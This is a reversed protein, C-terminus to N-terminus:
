GDRMGYGSGRGDKRSTPGSRVDGAPDRDLLPFQERLVSNFEEIMQESELIESHTENFGRINEAEKEAKKDLQSELSIVEDGNAGVKLFHSNGYAFFLNFTVVDPLSRRHLANIFDSARALDIWSPIVVPSIAVGTAATAVGGYPTCISIFLRPIHERDKGDCLNMAERVVLGGQSHAVVVMRDTGVANGSFFIDYFVGAITDLRLGSPYFFFWPQFHKRDISDVVTQWNKPSGDIGHVFVVPIKRPDYEELMYFFGNVNEFYCVPKYVGASANEDDFREDKLTTIIGTPISTSLVSAKIVKPVDLTVPVKSILPVTSDVYIDEVMIKGKAARHKSVELDGLSGVLEDKEVRSNDNIDAFVLLQYRGEPLLLYFPGAAPIFTYSTIKGRDEPYSVAVVCFPVGRGVNGTIKGTVLLCKEPAAKKMNEATPHFKAWTNSFFLKTYGCGSLALGIIAFFILRKILLM